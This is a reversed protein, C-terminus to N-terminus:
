TGTSTTFFHFNPNFRLRLNSNLGVLNNDKMEWGLIKFQRATTGLGTATIGMGSLGYLTNGSVSTDVSANKGPDTIASTGNFQAILELDPDDYVLAYPGVNGNGADTVTDATSAVWQNTFVPQKTTPNTYVVGALVGLIVDTTATVPVIYGGAIKVLDGEFMASSTASQILYRNPRVDGEKPRSVQFGFPNYAM